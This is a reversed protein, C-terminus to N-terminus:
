KKLMFGMVEGRRLLCCNKSDGHLYIGAQRSFLVRDGPRLDSVGAGVSLIDGYSHDQKSADPIAMVGSALGSGACAPCPKKGSIFPERVEAGVIRCAGCDGFRGPKYEVKKAGSCIDCPLDTSGSGQCTECVYGEKHSAYEVLLRDDLPTISWGRLLPRALSANNLLIQRHGDQGEEFHSPLALLRKIGDRELEQEASQARSFALTGDGSRDNAELARTEATEGSLTVDDMGDM